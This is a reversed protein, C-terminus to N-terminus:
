PTVRDVREFGGGTFRYIGIRPGRRSALSVILYLFGPEQAEALDTRSPRVSSRVHSHYAGIIRRGEARAARLAAFHDRPDVRYRVRRRRHANRAAVAASGRGILLGCCEDPAQRRAHEVVAAVVERPLRVRM